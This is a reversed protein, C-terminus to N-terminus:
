TPAKRRRPAAGARRRPRKQGAARHRHRRAVRARADPAGLVARAVARARAAGPWVLPPPAAPRPPRVHPAFAATWHAVASCSPLSVTAPTHSCPLRLPVLRRAKSCNELSSPKPRTEGGRSSGGGGGGGEVGRSGGGGGGGGNMDDDYDDDHQPAAFAAQARQEAASRQRQREAILVPHRAMLDVPCNSALQCGLLSGPASPDWSQPTVWKKLFRGHLDIVLVPMPRQASAQLAGQVDRLHSADGLRLVADGRVLGARGAPTTPQPDKDVYAFPRATPPPAGLDEAPVQELAGGNAPLGPHPAAGQRSDHAARQSADMLLNYAQQMRRYVQLAQADGPNKEPHWIRPKLFPRNM